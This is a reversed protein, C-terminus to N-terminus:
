RTKSDRQRKLRDEHKIELFYFMAMGSVGILFFGFSSPISEKIEKLFILDLINVAITMSIGAIFASIGFNIKNKFCLRASQACIIVGIVPLVIDNM